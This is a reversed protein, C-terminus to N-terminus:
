IFYLSFYFTLFYILNTKKQSRLLSHVNFYANAVSCIFYFGWCIWMFDFLFALDYLIRSIKEITVFAVFIMKLLDTDWILMGAYALTPNFAKICSSHCYSICINIAILFQRCRKWQLVSCTKELEILNLYKRCANCCCGYKDQFSFSIFMCKVSFRKEREM